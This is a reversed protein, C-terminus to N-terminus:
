LQRFSFRFGGGALLAPKKNGGPLQQKLPEIAKEEM